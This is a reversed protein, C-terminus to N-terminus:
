VKRRLRLAGVLGSGLLVLSAPEPVPSATPFQRLTFSYSEETGADPVDLSYALFALTSFDANPANQAFLGNTWELSDASHVLNNFLSGGALYTFVPTPDTDPTDFDLGLGDAGIASLPVFGDGAGVGLQLQYASWDQGSVNSIVEIIFYETTGNSNLVDFSIDIPNVSEFDKRIAVWNFNTAGELVGGLSASSDNDTNVGAINTTLLSVAGAGSSTFDVIFGAQAIQGNLALATMATFIMLFKKM